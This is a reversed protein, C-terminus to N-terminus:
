EGAPKCHPKGDSGRPCVFVNDGAELDPGIVAPRTAVLKRRLSSLNINGTVGDCASAAKLFLSFGKDRDSTEVFALATTPMKAWMCAALRDAKGAAAAPTTAFAATALIIAALHVTRM